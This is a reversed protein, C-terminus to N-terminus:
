QLQQCSFYEGAYRPCMTDPFSIDGVQEFVDYMTSLLDAFSRAAPRMYQTFMDTAVRSGVASAARQISLAAANYERPGELLSIANEAQTTVPLALRSLPDFGCLIPPSLAPLGNIQCLAIDLQQLLEEPRYPPFKPGTLAAPVEFAGIEPDPNSCADWPFSQSLETLGVRGPIDRAFEHTEEICQAAYCLNNGITNQYEVACAPNCSPILSNYIAQIRPHELAQACTTPLDLEDAMEVRVENIRASIANYNVGDNTCVYENDSPDQDHASCSFNTYASACQDISIGAKELIGDLAMLKCQTLYAEREAACCAQAKEYSPLTLGVRKYSDLNSEHCIQQAHILEHMLLYYAEGKPQPNNPICVEIVNGNRKAYETKALSNDGQVCEEKCEVDIWCNACAPPVMDPQKQPTDRVINQSVYERWGGVGCVNPGSTTRATDGHFREPECRTLVIGGTGIRRLGEEQQQTIDCAESEISRCLYGRKAFPHSCIGKGLEPEPVIANRRRIEDEEVDDPLAPVDGGGTLNPQQVREDEGLKAPYRGGRILYESFREACTAIDTGDDICEAYKPHFLTAQVPELPLYWQLGVDDHRMWIAANKPKDTYTPYIVQEDSAVDVNDRELVEILDEMKEELDCWRRQLMIMSPDPKNDGYTAECYDPDDNEQLCTIYEDLKENEEECDEGEANKVYRVGHRYRWIAATFESDDEKDQWTDKLDDLESIVAKAKEKVEDAYGQPWPRARTLTELIPTIFPDNTARWLYNIGPLKAIVDVAKGPYGDVGAEYGSTIAQLDRGLSRLWSNREAVTKLKDQVQICVIYMTSQEDNKGCMEELDNQLSYDVFEEKEMDFRIPNKNNDLTNLPADYYIGLTFRQIALETKETNTELEVKEKITDYIPLQAQASPLFAIGITILLAIM